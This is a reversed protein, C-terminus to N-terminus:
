QPQPPPAATPPAGKPPPPPPLTFVPPPPPRQGLDPILDDRNRARLAQALADYTFTPNAALAPIAQTMQVIEDAEAIRQAQTAFRLDAKIQIHLDRQYLNRSLEVQVGLKVKYDFMTKLEFDPLFLANLDCNNQAIQKVFKTYKRAPVSLQKTAQEIRAAIGRWTEGSKGSEGSLVEPSQMSSQGWEWMKDVIQMLQPNAQAVPIPVLANKIDNTGTVQHMKGPGMEFKDKFTIQDSHIFSQCNGLTAQDITQNLLTDTARNFDSQIRGAGMGLSGVLNEIFVAHSFMHIPVKRPKAPSDTASQMWGPLPPPPPLPAPPPPPPMDNPMRGFQAMHDMSAQVQGAQAGATIAMAKHAELAQGYANKEATQQDFRAQEKWDVREHIILKLIRRTRYDVIAQIFRDHDQGPLYGQDWGEYHLLVYPRTDDVTEDGPEIHQSRAVAFRFTPLPEEEWQPPTGAIVAEVDDWDDAMAQLEHRYYRLVRCRHPCDSYDPMTTTYVFPIVFEDVTLMEHRNQKLRPNYYSHCTADGAMLYLLLGREQQRLFDPIEESFQYNTHLSLIEAVQDDPGMKTFQVINSGDGFIEDNMRTHVRTLNELMLPVHGNACSEFPVDKPPLDGAFLKWDESFRRAYEECSEKDADYHNCVMAGIKKLCEQGEPTKKYDPVLNPSDDDYSVNEEKYSGEPEKQEDQVELTVTDDPPM